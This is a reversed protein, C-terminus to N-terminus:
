YGLSTIENTFDLMLILDSSSLNLSDPLGVIIAVALSELNIPSTLWHTLDQLWTVSRLMLLVEGDQNFNLVPVQTSITLMSLDVDITLTSMGQMGTIEDINVSLAQLLSPMSKLKSQIIFATLENTNAALLLEAIAWRLALLRLLLASAIVAM